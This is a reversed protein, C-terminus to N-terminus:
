MMSPTQSSTARWGGAGLRVWRALKRVSYGEFTILGDAMKKVHPAGRSDMWIIANALHHGSRDVAVTGSWQATCCVAAIDSAPVHGKGLLRSTASKIANWWDDPCQEAGGNPLLLLKTPEFEHAVAEGEMTFLAVKPGSTGLDITLIYNDKIHPM